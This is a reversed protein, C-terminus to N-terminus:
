MRREQALGDMSSSIESMVRLDLKPKTVLNVPIPKAGALDAKPDQAFDVRVADLRVGLDGGTRGGEVDGGTLASVDICAPLSLLLSIAIRKVNAEMEPLM